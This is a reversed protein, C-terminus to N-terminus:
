DDMQPYKESSNDDITVGNQKRRTPTALLTLSAGIMFMLGGTLALPLGPDSKVKLITYPEVGVFLVYINSDIEVKEGFQAAGVGLFKDNEYVSYIIRPNDPKLSTQNMGGAPDFSPFYRYIKVVRKTGPIKLFDSEKLLVEIENGADNTHMVKVLHGFSQQYVKIERYILPHNVSIAENLIENNDELVTVYSYYQSPSGNSNFEINFSDLYLSFPKKLTLVKSMDVIDGTVISVQGNQGYYAFVTGGVLILVIGAHLMLIGIQRPCGRWNIGRRCFASKFWVWRNITCLAMNLLLILLLAKFLLTNYFTDPFLASGLASVLGIMILLSLGTKMSAIAHYIKRISVM